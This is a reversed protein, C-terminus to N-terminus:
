QQPIIAWIGKASGDTDKLVAYQNTSADLYVFPFFYVSVTQDADISIPEDLSVSPIPLVKESKLQQSKWWSLRVGEVYADTEIKEASSAGKYYADMRLPGLYYENQEASYPSDGADSIIKGGATVFVASPYEKILSEIDQTEIPLEATGTQSQVASSQQALSKNVDIMNADAPISSGCGSVIAIALLIFVSLMGKRNVTRM